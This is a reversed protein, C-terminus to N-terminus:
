RAADGARWREIDHEARAYLVALCLTGISSRM